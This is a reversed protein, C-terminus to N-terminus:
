QKTRFCRFYTHSIVSFRYDNNDGKGCESTFLSFRKSFPAPATLFNQTLSRRLLWRERDFTLVVKAIATEHFLGVPLM